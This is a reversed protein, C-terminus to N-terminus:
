VVWKQLGEDYGIINLDINLTKLMMDMTYGEDDWGYDEVKRAGEEREDQEEGGEEGVRFGAGDEEDM